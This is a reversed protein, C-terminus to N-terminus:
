LDGRRPSKSREEARPQTSSLGLPSGAANAPFRARAERTAPSFEVVSGGICFQRFFITMHGRRVTSNWGEDVICVERNTNRKNISVTIWLLLSVLMPLHKWLM